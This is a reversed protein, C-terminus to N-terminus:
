SLNSEDSKQFLFQVLSTWDNKQIESENLFILTIPIGFLLSGWAKMAGTSKM